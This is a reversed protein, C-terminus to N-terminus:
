CAGCLRRVVEDLQDLNQYRIQVVGSPGKGSLTVRLGLAASVEKELAATNPDKSRPASVARPKKAQAAESQRAMDEAERVSIGDNLIKELLEESNGSALLARAHGASLNGQDILGKVKEPLKLLRLTNSVHVRSKGM